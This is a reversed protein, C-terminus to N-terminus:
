DTTEITTVVTTVVTKTTNGDIYKKTTTKTDSETVHTTTTAKVTTTKDAAELVGTFCGAQMSFVVAVIFFIKFLNKMHLGGFIYNIGM